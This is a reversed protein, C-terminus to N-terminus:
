RPGYGKLFFDVAREVHARTEAEGPVECCGILVRMHCLGKILCFFHEAAVIPEPVELAGSAHARRLLCEFEDLTRRPGAEFFLQALKSEGGGGAAQGAMMRYMAVAEDSNVLGRFALGIDILSERIPRNGPGLEFREHPLQEECRAKIAEKFLTEKDSFHSYVTLKSVGAEAAIADMSIGDYGHLPFLRKAADLIAQRKELDKPRGPGAPKRRAETM